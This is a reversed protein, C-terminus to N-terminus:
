REGSKMGELWSRLLELTPEPEGHLLLTKNREKGGAVLELENQAVSLSKALLKILAKNARGKEPAATVRAKIRVQGASDRAPGDIRNASAGPQLRVAIRVGKETRRFPASSM